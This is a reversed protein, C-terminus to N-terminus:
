PSTGPRSGPSTRRWAAARTGARSSVAATVDGSGSYSMISHELPGAPPPAVRELVSDSLSEFTRFEFEQETVSWGAASLRDMVYEASEDYGPSGSVRTGGNADAIDQFAAQHERVGGLTVCGLLQAITNNTQKACVDPAAVASTATAGAAALALAAAVAAAAPRSRRFTM